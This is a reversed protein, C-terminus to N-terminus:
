IEFNKLLHDDSDLTRIPILAHINVLVRSIGIQVTLRFLNLNVSLEVEVRVWILYHIDVLRPCQVQVSLLSRGKCVAPRWEFELM